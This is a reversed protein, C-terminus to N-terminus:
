CVLVKKYGGIREREHSMCLMGDMWYYCVYLANRNWSKERCELSVVGCRCLVTLQLTLYQNSSLKLGQAVCICAKHQMTHVIKCIECCEM